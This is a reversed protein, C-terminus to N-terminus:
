QNKVWGQIAQVFKGVGKSVIEVFMTMESSMVQLEIIDAQNFGKESIQSLKKTINETQTKNVLAIEKGYDLIMKGLNANQGVLKQDTIRNIQFDFPGAGEELKVTIKQAAEAGQQGQGELATQFKLVDSEQPKGLESLGESIKSEGPTLGGPGGISVGGNSM